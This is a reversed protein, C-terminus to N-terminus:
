KAGKLEIPKDLAKGKLMLDQASPTPGFVTATAAAAKDAATALRPTVVILLETENNQWRTSRFLASLIPVQSIGPVQSVGNSYDHQFLGGIALSEGSKLEVTTDARRTTLAPVSINALRLSNAQDIQSVEPTVQLRIVGDEEVIPLFNLKVGYQRFDITVNNLGQPVPYPFEGGALFSAKEGSLSMLNPRALTRVLGKTELADLQADITTHGAGGTFQLTSNRTDNGVLGLGYAFTFSNNKILASFGMDHIASRSAEMIRVELIVQSGRAVLSSTVAQPAFKEALSKAREVVGINSVEGDLLLGGGLNRVHIHERPFAAALEDELEVPDYGVRVDIVERLAGGPGYVLINTAGVDKGRVYFSRDSTAIVQAIDSQAVVIKSAPQDLRFARTKDKPVLIARNLAPEAAMLPTAHAHAPAFSAAGVFALACAFAGLIPRTM